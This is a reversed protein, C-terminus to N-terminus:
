LHASGSLWILQLTMLGGCSFHYFQLGNEPLNIVFGSMCDLLYGVKVNLGNIIVTQDNNLVPWHSWTM